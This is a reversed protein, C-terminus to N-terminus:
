RSSSISRRASAAARAQRPIAVAAPGQLRGPDEQRQRHRRSRFAAHSLPRLRIRDGIPHGGQDGPPTEGKWDPGALLFSGADNGTARSGVYAFNFTYMDIFQLSYYRGKEVRRCPSSWRSPACTRASSPIPRTPTRRRSRRTTRRTSARTTSSRTGPRRSNPAAAISSIPTNFATATSWRSATSRRRRPSPAPREPTVTQAQAGLVGPLAVALIAVLRIM